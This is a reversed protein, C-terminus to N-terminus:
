NKKSTPVGYYNAFKRANSKYWRDYTTTTKGTMDTNGATTDTKTKRKNLLKQIEPSNTKNAYFVHTGDALYGDILTNGNRTLVQSTTMQEAVNATVATANKFSYNGIGQQAKQRIGAINSNLGQNLMDNKISQSLTISKNAVGSARKGGRNGKAM